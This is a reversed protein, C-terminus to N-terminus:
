VAKLLLVPTSDRCHPELARARLKYDIRVVHSTGQDLDFITEVFFQYPLKTIGKLGSWLCYTTVSMEKHFSKAKFKWLNEEEIEFLHSSIFMGMLLRLEQVFDAHVNTLM